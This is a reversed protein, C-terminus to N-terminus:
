KEPQEPRRIRFRLAKVDTERAQNEWYADRVDPSAKGTTVLGNLAKGFEQLGARDASLLFRGEEEGVFMSEGVLSACGTSFGAVVLLLAIKLKM